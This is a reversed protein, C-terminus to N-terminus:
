QGRGLAEEEDSPGGAIEMEAMRQLRDLHDGGVSRLYSMYTYEWEEAIDIKEDFVIKPSLVHQVSLLFAMVRPLYTMEGMRDRPTNVIARMLMKAAQEGEAAQEAEKKKITITAQKLKAADPGEGEAWRLEETM